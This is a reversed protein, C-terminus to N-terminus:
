KQKGIRNRFFYLICCVGVGIPIAIIAIMIYDVKRIGWVSIEYLGIMAIAEGDPSWSFDDIGHTVNITHVLEGTSVNWFRIDIWDATSALLSSDPSWMLKSLSRWHVNEITSLLEGTEASWIQITTYTGVAIKKGDPSWDVFKCSSSEEGLRMLMEGSSVSWVEAIGVCGVVVKTGDPSWDVSCIQTLASFERVIEATSINVIATYNKSGLPDAGLVRCRVAIMRGDPSWKVDSITNNFKFTKICEGTDADWILLLLRKEEYVEDLGLWLWCFSAIWSGNPSWEVRRPGMRPWGRDTGPDPVISEILSGDDADRIEIYQSHTNVIREGDPSWDVGYGGSSISWLEVFDNVHTATAAVTSQFPMAFFVFAITIAALKLLYFWKRKELYFPKSLRNGRTKEM